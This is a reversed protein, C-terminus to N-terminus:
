PQEFLEVESLAVDTGQLSRHIDVVHVEVQTAGASNALDVTQADPTDALAVDYTKGTSYVLHLRAPRHTAQFQAPDGVRVIARRLDVPHDFTLVLVPPAGTMPAAWYTNKANDVALTADHGPTAATASIKTPRVPRLDAGFQREVWKRGAVVEQNVSTRFGPVIGYLVALVALIAVFVRRLWRGIAALVGRRRPGKRKRSLRVRKWWPPKVQEPEDLPRGCGMCIRRSVPNRTRCGVCVVDDEALERHETQARPRLPRADAPQQAGPHDVEPADAAVPASTASTASTATTVAAPQRDPEHGSWELFEGCRPCFQTGEASREGCKACVIM